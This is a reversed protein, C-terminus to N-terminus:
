WTPITGTNMMHNFRKLNERSQQIRQIRLQQSLIRTQEDMADALGDNGNTVVVQQQENKKNEALMLQLVCNALPETGDKFGMAFCLERKTQVSALLEEEKAKTLEQEKEEQAQQAAIAQQEEIEPCFITFRMISNFGFKKSADKFKGWLVVKPENCIDKAYTNLFNMLDNKTKYYNKLTFPIKSCGNCDEFNIHKTIIEDQVDWLKHFYTDNIKSKITLGDEIYYDKTFGSQAFFLVVLGVLLLVKKM